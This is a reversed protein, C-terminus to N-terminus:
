NIKRVIDQVEAKIPIKLISCTNPKAHSILNHEIDFMETIQISKLPNDPSLIEIYDNKVLSNRIEVLYENNAHKEMIKGIFNHIKGDHKNKYNPIIQDPDNLFFGTCYKRHYVNDLEQIWEPKLTYDQSNHCYSDIAQRYTKTVSALYNVGK